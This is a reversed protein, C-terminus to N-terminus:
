LLLDRGQDGGLLRFVDLLLDEALLAGSQLVLEHLQAFAECRPLGRLSYTNCGVDM